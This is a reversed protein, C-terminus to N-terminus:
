LLSAWNTGNVIKYITGRSVGYQKALSPIVHRVKYPAAKSLDLARIKLVDSAQLKIRGHRGKAMMDDVNDQHTGLFLHDPNVCAPTDCRHCACIGSAIAGNKREWAFRHATFKKGLAYFRGYGCRDRPGTWIHCGSSDISVKADFRESLTRIM